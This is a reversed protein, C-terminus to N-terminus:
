SKQEAQLAREYCELAERYRQLRNCIAGKHLYALTLASNTAIARDYSELAADMRQLRELTMGRKILAESNRPEVALVEEFRSLADDFKDSQLLFEGEELLKLIRRRADKEHDPQTVETPAAALTPHVGTGASSLTNTSASNANAKLNGNGPASATTKVGGVLSTPEHELERVRKELQELAGLFRASVQELATSPAAPLEEIALANLSMGRGLQQGMPLTLMVDSFRNFARVLVIAATLIGLLGLGGLIAAVSLISQNSRIVMATTNTQQEVLRQEISALRGVLLEIDERALIPVTPLQVQIIQPPPPEQPVPPAVSEPVVNTESSQSVLNTATAPELTEIEAISEVPPSEILGPPDDQQAQARIVLLVMLVCAFGRLRHPLSYYSM